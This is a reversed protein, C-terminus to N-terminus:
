FSCSQLPLMSDIGVRVLRVQLTSEVAALPCGFAEPFRDLVELRGGILSCIVSQREHAERIGVDEQCIGRVHGDISSQRTCALSCELCQLEVISGSLRM